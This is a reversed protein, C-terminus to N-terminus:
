STQVRNRLSDDSQLKSIRVPKTLWASLSVGSWRDKSENENGCGEGERNPKSGTIGNGM